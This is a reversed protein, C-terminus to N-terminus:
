LILGIFSINSEGSLAIRCIFYGSKSYETHSSQAKKKCIYGLFTFVLTAVKKVVNPFIPIIKTGVAGLFIKQLLKHGFKLRIRSIYTCLNTSLYTPVQTPLYRHLYTPPYTILNTPVYTPLYTPQNTPLNFMTFLLFRYRNLFRLITKITKCCKQGCINM